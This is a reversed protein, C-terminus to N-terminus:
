AADKPSHKRINRLIIIGEDEQDAQGECILANGDKSIPPCCVGISCHWLEPHNFWSKCNRWIHCYELIMSSQNHM